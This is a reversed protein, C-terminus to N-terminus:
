GHAHVAKRLAALRFLEAMAPHDLNTTRFLPALAAEAAAMMEPSIETPLLPTDQSDDGGAIEAEEVGWTRFVVLHKASLEV